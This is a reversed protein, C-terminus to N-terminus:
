VTQSSAAASTVTKTNPKTEESLRKERGQMKDASAALTSPTHTKLFSFFRPRHFLLQPRPEQVEHIPNKKNEKGKCGFTCLLCDSTFPNMKLQAQCNTCLLSLRKKKDEKGDTSVDILSGKITLWSLRNESSLANM